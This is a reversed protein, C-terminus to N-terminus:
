PTGVRGPPWYRLRVKGIVWEVPVPGWFRSDDSAGRNDGLVYLHGRPVTIERPFDCFSRCGDTRVYPERQPQGNRVLRGDVMMLRDGGRAVVRKVFSVEAPASGPRACLAQAAGCGVGQEAEVPPHLVVIDGLAPDSAPTTIIRDGEEITPAMAPSPVRFTRAGALRLLGPLVFLVTVACALVVIGAM